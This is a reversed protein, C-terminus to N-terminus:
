QGTLRAKTKRAEDAVSSPQGAAILRDCMEVIMGKRYSDTFWGLAEVMDRRLTEPQTGDLAFAVYRPVYRHYHNNRLMFVSWSRKKDSKTTDELTTLNERVYEETRDIWDLLEQKRATTAPWIREKGDFQREIEAKVKAPDFLTLADRSYFETRPSLMEEQMARVLLPILADDGCEGIEKMSFRRVLEYNDNLGAEVAERVDTGGRRQLLRFAEMRVVGYPSAALREKLLKRVDTYGNESLRRLAMAQVDASTHDALKRWLRNDGRRVTLAENIDVSPAATNAFRYTPDGFLHTELYHVHRGWQGIRIGAAFLGLFEDPWKDQLSNVSCGQAAVTRGETFLYAGAVYDDWHFSGNSCADHMIFRTAPRCRYIDETEINLTLARLSDARRLSDDTAFWADPFGWKEQWEARTKAKDKSRKMIARLSRRIQEAHDDIWSAPESGSIYQTQEGGHHHGLVIDTGPRQIEELIREKMPFFVDYDTFRARGGYGFLAPFQERLARQEDAWANPDDSNYGHGRFMFLSDVPNNEGKEAVVKRLFRDLLAYKDTGEREPAKIRASYIDSDIHQASSPNMTYYYYLPKVSDRRIFDFKLDFDDYYRDSPVSSEQWDRSQDMKFASTLHQADRLMPIPIDGVLVVGELPMKGGALAIIRERIAEPADGDTVLIWTALRDREVADRYAEVAERSKEYSTRDVVIAFSTPTKVTPAIERIEARTLLPVLLLAPLLNRRKM